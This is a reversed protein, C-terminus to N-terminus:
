LKPFRIYEEISKATREASMVCDGVSIGGRYNSCIFLGPNSKEFGEIAEIVKAYGMRYQPIAKEWRRISCVVPKGEVQMVSKLEDLVIATLEEDSKSALGPQRSGGVFSTFAETEGDPTRGPFIVSSWITGLFKRNEKEPVLLGFGDLERHVQSRKFGMFVEAVPPYYIDELVAPLGADLGTIIKSTVYAPTAFVVTDAQITKRETGIRCAITYVSPADKGNRVVSEISCGLQVSNGLARAIANPLTQMGSRFSFMEARDKAV